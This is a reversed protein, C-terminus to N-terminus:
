VVNGDSVITEEMRLQQPQIGSMTVNQNHIVEPVKVDDQTEDLESPAKANQPSQKKM